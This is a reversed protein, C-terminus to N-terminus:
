CVSYSTAKTFERIPFTDPCLFLSKQLISSASPPTDGPNYNPQCGVYNPPDHTMGFNSIPTCFTEDLSLLIQQLNCTTIVAESFRSPCILVFFQNASTRREM